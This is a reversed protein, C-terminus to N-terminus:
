LIFQATVALNTLGKVMDSSKKDLEVKVEIIRNDINASPDSNIVDQRKVQLGINAVIGKLSQSLAPSSINVTQGLNIKDIDTEYIEAVVYMTDTQGIEMIGQSSIAEGQQTLIELVQGSQPTKVYTLDLEAQAKAVSAKAQQLEAEIVAVDVGRIETVQDLNGKMAEIQKLFSEKTQQANSETEKIEQDTIGISKALSAEAELIKKTTTQVDLRRSDLTSQSVAGKEALFTYRRLEEQYNALESELRSIIAKKEKKDGALQAELRAIKARNTVTTGRLEAELKAITAEVQTIEGEQAGAKIQALKAQNLKVKEEAEALNRLALANQDPVAMIQGAEVMDGEKVLLEDIRSNLSPSPASIHIVEGQPEIRGLATVTKVAIVEEEQSVKTQATFKDGFNSVGIAVIGLVSVGILLLPSSKNKIKTLM